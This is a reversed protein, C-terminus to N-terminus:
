IQGIIRAPNGAVISGPPVDKVVVSAAGVVSGKGITVGKLIMSNMGIFVDEEILIPATKGGRIDKQREEPQLPHFDTDVITCNSGLMTRDRIIISTAAIVRASALGVSFGIEIRAAATRTSLVVPHYPVLPNTSRWSRMEVNAGIEITSGKYKQIIPMGFIRWGKRPKIGHFLFGIYIWPWALVRKIENGLVWPMNILETVLNNQNQISFLDAIQDPTKSNQPPNQEYNTM